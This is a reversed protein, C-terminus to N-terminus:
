QADQSDISSVLEEIGHEATEADSLSCMARVVADVAQGRTLKGGEPLVIKRGSLEEARSLMGALDKATIRDNVGFIGKRRGGKGPNHITSNPLDPYM